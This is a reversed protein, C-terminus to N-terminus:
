VSTQKKGFAEYFVVEELAKVVKPEPTEDPYGLPIITIPDVSEPIGLVQRIEQAISPDDTRYASMYVSGLGRQCAGLMINAAALVANEVERDYSQKKDVCVVIVLPAEQLFDAGYMRKEAPCHRNKIEVLRKKTESNKVVVFFWPQGNMSSPAYIALNLLDQIVSDPVKRSQYKRISRRGKIATDVDM